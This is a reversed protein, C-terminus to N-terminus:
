GVGSQPPKNTNRKSNQKQSLQEADLRETLAPGVPDCSRWCCWLAAYALVCGLSHSATVGDCVKDATAQILELM